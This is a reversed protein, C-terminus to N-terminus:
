KGASEFREAFPARGLSGKRFAKFGFESIPISIPVADWESFRMEMLETRIKWRIFLGV